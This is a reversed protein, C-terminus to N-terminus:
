LSLALSKKSLFSAFRVKYYHLYRDLEKKAKNTDDGGEKKADFRNCSYYGGTNTGHDSWAGM